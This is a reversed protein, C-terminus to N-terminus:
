KHLTNIVDVSIRRNPALCEIVAASKNGACIVRPEGDGKGRADIITAPIGNEIMQQKVSQARALSLHQNDNKNGIRDSYGTIVIKRNTLGESKVKAILQNVQQAGLPLMTTKGFDFLSEAQIEHHVIATPEVSSKLILRDLCNEPLFFFSQAKMDSNFLVKYQCTLVSKDARTFHFIYDWEKVRLIGENFHPVGILEYVQSKTMGSKIQKLNDLNVFSGESRVASAAEPFIPSTTKGQSDVDSTSRTCASLLVAGGAILALRVYNAYKM